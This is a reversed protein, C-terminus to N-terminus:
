VVVAAPTNAFLVHVGVALMVPDGESDLSELQWHYRGSDLDETLAPDVRVLAIGIGPSTIESPVADSRIEFLAASGERRALSWVLIFGEGLWDWAVLEGTLDRATLSFRHFFLNGVYSSTQQDRPATM